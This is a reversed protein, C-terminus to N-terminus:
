IRTSGTSFPLDMQFPLAPRPEVFNELGASPRNITWSIDGLPLSGEPEYTQPVYPGPKMMNDGMRGPDIWEEGVVIPQLVYEIGGPVPSGQRLRQIADYVEKMPDTM